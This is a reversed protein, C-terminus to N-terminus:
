YRASVCNHANITTARTLAKHFNYNKTTSATVVAACLQYNVRIFLTTYDDDDGDDDDVCVYNICDM